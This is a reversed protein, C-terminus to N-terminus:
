DFFQHRTRRYSGTAVQQLSKRDDAHPEANKALTKVLGCM